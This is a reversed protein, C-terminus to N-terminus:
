GVDIWVDGTAVNETPASNQIHFKKGSGIQIGGNPLVRLYGKTTGDHKTEMQACGGYNNVCGLRASSYTATGSDCKRFIDLAYYSASKNVNVTINGGATMDIGGTNIYLRRNITVNDPYLHLYCDSTDATRLALQVYDGDANNYVSLRGKHSTGGNNFYLTGCATDYNLGQSKMIDQLSWSVNASGDFTKGTAGITLTRSTALKTATDANGQLYCKSEDAYVMWKDLKQSYVGHNTGGSGVGMFVGIGTDTRKAVYYTNQNETSREITVNGTLTGGSLPLYDNLDATRALTGGSSPLTVTINSSSNNGPTIMTYGSSTGYLALRGYSNKDTGNAISNGVTIRAEGQASTTGETIVKFYGYEQGSTGNVKFNKGHINNWAWTASGLSSSAAGKAYPLLGSGGTRIWTDTSGTPPLLGWYGDDDTVMIPLEGSSSPLEVTVRGTHNSRTKLQVYGTSENYLNIIGKANGATGSATSNGVTLRTEGVTSTTGPTEVRFSGGQQDAAGFVQFWRSKVYNWPIADTGLNDTLATDSRVTSGSVLGSSANIVKSFTNGDSKFSVLTTNDGTGQIQFSYYGNNRTRFTMNNPSSIYTNGTNLYKDYMGAGIHLNGSSNYSFANLITGSAVSSSDSTNTYASSTKFTVAQGNAFDINGLSLHGGTTFSDKFRITM